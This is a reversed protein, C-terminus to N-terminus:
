SKRASIARLFDEKVAKPMASAIEVLQDNSKGSISPHGFVCNKDFSCVYPRGDKRTAAIQKGFHGSCIKGAAAAPPTAKEVKPAKEAKAGENFKVIAKEVTLPTADVKSMVAWEASRAVKM